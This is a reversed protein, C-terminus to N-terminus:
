IKKQYTKINDVLLSNQELSICFHLSHTFGSPLSPPSSSLPTPPPLVGILTYQILFSGIKFLLFILYFLQRQMMNLSQCNM